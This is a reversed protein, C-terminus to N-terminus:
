VRCKRVKRVLRLMERCVRSGEKPRRMLISQVDEKSPRCMPHYVVVERVEESIRGSPLTRVIARTGTCVSKTVKLFFPSFICFHTIRFNLFFSIIFYGLSPLSMLNTLHM